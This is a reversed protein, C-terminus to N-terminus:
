AIQDREHASEFNAPSMQNLQSHRRKVNYFGEIYKFIERQAHQPDNFLPVINLLESELTAFFSEAMANDYCDGVSGMSIKVGLTKCRKQFLGSTYQRGQDSHHIVEAAGGRRKVAMDLANVVLEAPMRTAMSWGVVKRSWVDLVTALYLPQKRTPVHTIDAVWLQNLTTAKFQRNVLDPAPRQSEDRTTTRWKKRRTVGIVGARRM